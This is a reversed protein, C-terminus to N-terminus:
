GEKYEVKMFFLFNGLVAQASGKQIEGARKQNFALISPALALCINIHQKTPGM